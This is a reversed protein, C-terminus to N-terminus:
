TQFKANRNECRGSRDELQLKSHHLVSPSVGGAVMDSRIKAISAYQAGEFKPDKFFRAVSFAQEKLNKQQQSNGLASGQGSPQAPEPEDAKKVESSDAVIFSPVLSVYNVQVSYPPALGFHDVGRVLEVSEACHAHIVLLLLWRLVGHVSRSVDRKDQARLESKTTSCLMVKLLFQSRIIHIYIYTYM